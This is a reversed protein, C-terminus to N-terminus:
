QCKIDKQLGKLFKIPPHIEPVSKSPLADLKAILQIAIISDSFIVVRKFSGTISFLQMIATNMAEIGGDLHINHKGLSL